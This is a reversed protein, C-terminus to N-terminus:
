SNSDNVDFLITNYTTPTLTGIDVRSYFAVGSHIGGTDGAPSEVRHMKGFTGRLIGVRMLKRVGAFVHDATNDNSVYHVAGLYTVQPALGRELARDASEFGNAQAFAELFEFSTPNWVFGLGNATMKNHGNQERIVRRALRVLDDINAASGALTTAVNDTWVGGSGGINRWNAHDDLVDTEIFEGLRDGTRVWIESEATWPSQALDAWDFYTTVQRGTSITLSEAVEVMDTPTLSTGRTVTAVAAWGGTTSIYSSSIVRTNSITVDCM